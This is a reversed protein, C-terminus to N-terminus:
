PAARLDRIKINTFSVTNGHDQILIHGDPWEGFEPIDKFKSQAVAARFAESGRTFHVTEKGNLWYTVDKGKSLIRAHNWEGPPHVIKDKAAPIIDYLSGVTRNGDRGLKADPHHADDLVQFEMGIASGISVPKGTVKDIPSLNTQVFIKVGSNAGPAIRFDFSLDFDSYRAKTIIDGPGTAEGGGRETITLAGGCMAWGKTPFDERGASRWGTSTKGDWLLRWGAAREAASLQNSGKPAPAVACTEASQGPGAFLAMAVVALALTAFASPTAPKHKNM